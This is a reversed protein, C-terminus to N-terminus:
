RNLRRISVQSPHHTAPAAQGSNGTGMGGTSYHRHLKCPKGGCRRPSYWPLPAYAGAQDRTSSDHDSQVDDSAKAVLVVQVGIPASQGALDRLVERQAQQWSQDAQWKLND